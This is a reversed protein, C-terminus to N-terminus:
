SEGHERSDAQISNKPFSLTAAIKRVIGPGPVDFVLRIPGDVLKGRARKRVKFHAREKNLSVLCKEIADHSRATTSLFLQLGEASPLPPFAIPPAHRPRSTRPARQNSGRNWAAPAIIRSGTSAPSRRHSRTSRTATASVRFDWSSPLSIVSGLRTRALAVLYPGFGFRQGRDNSSDDHGRVEM